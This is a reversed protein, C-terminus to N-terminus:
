RSEAQFQKRSVAQRFLMDAVAAGVVDFGFPSLEATATAAVVGEDIHDFAIWVLDIHIHMSQAYAAAEVM